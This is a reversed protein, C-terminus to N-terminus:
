DHLNDLQNVLDNQRNLIMTAPHSLIHNGIQVLGEEGILQISFPGPQPQRNRMTDHTVVPSTDFRGAVPNATPTGEPNM